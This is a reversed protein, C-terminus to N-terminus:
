GITKASDGTRRREVVTLCHTRCRRVATWAAQRLAESFMGCIIYDVLPSSYAMWKVAMVEGVTMAAHSWESVAYVINALTLPLWLIVTAILMARTTRFLDLEHRLAEDPLSLDARRADDDDDDDDIDDDSASETSQDPEPRRKHESNAAAYSRQQHDASEDTSPM